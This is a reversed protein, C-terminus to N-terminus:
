LIVIELRQEEKSNEWMKECEKVEMKSVVEDYGRFLEHKPWGGTRGFWHGMESTRTMDITRRYDWIIPHIVGM